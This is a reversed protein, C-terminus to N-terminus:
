GEGGGGAARGLVLGPDIADRLEVVFVEVGPSEGPGSGHDGVDYRNVSSTVGVWSCINRWCAPAARQAWM